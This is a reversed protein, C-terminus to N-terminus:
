RGMTGATQTVAISVLDAANGGAPVEASMDVMVTVIGDSNDLKTTKFKIQPMTITASTSNAGSLGAVFTGATQATMKTFEDSGAVFRAKFSAKLQRKGFEMRGRVAGTSADGSTQFGSGPFYGSDKRVNNDWSFDFEEFNKNTVYNVGNITLTLGASPLLNVATATPFTLGSPEAFKGSGIIDAELMSNKRGPGSKVMIKFSEIVCGLYGRNYVATGTPRIAEGFTFSPLEIENTDTVPNIPTYTSGSASGLGFAAM